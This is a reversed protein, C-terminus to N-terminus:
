YAATILDLVSKQDNVSASFRVVKKSDYIGDPHDSGQTDRTLKDASVAVAPAAVNGSFTAVMTNMSQDTDASIYAEIQAEIVEEAPSIGIAGKVKAESEKSVTSQAVLIPDERKDTNRKLTDKSSDPKQSKAHQDPLILKSDNKFFPITLFVLLALAAIQVLPRMAISKDTPYLVSFVSRKSREGYTSEFLSDLSEKVSSAPETHTESRYGQIGRFVLKLQEYEDRDSCWENLSLREKETLEEFSKTMIIDVLEQEM